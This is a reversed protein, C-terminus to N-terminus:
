LDDPLDSEISTLRADAEAMAEVLARYDARTIVAQDVPRGDKSEFRKNLLAIAEILDTM